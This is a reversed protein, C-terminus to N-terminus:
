GGAGGTRRRAVMALGAMGALTLGITGPLPVAADLVSVSLMTPEVFTYDEPFLGSNFATIILPTTTLVAQIDPVLWFGLDQVLAAQPFFDPPLAITAVQFSTITSTSNLSFVVNDANATRNQVSLTLDFADGSLNSTNATPTFNSGFFQVGGGGSTTTSIPAAASDFVADITLVEGILSSGPDSSQLMGSLQFRIPAAEAAGSVLVLGACVAGILAKVMM